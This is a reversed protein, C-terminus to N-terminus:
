ESHDSQLRRQDQRGQERRRRRGGPRRAVPAGHV